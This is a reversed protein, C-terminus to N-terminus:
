TKPAGLGNEGAFKTSRFEDAGQNFGPPSGVVPDGSAVLFTEQMPVLRNELEARTPAAWSAMSKPSRLSPNLSEPGASRKARVETTKALSSKGNENCRGVNADIGDAGGLERAARLGAFGGGVIVIHPM